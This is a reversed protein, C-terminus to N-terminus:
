FIIMKRLKSRVGGRLSQVYFLIFVIGCSVVHPVRIINHVELM